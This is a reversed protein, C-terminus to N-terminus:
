LGLKEKETHLKEKRKNLIKMILKLSQELNLLAQVSDLSINEKAHIFNSPQKTVAYKEKLEPGHYKLFYKNM